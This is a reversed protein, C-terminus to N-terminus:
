GSLICKYWINHSIYFSLRLIFFTHLFSPFFVLFFLSYEPFFSSRHHSFLASYCSFQYFYFNLVFCCFFIALFLFTCLNRSYNADQLLHQVPVSKNRISLSTCVIIFLSSTKKILTGLKWVTLTKKFIKKCVTQFIQFHCCCCKAM